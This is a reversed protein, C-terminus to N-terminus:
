KGDYGNQKLYAAMKEKARSLHSKVTGAPCGTIGAIKEISQDEMYFLTICTREIEKLQSLARYIDIERGIDKQDTNYQADVQYTDLDSTEKRNRLYDYFVNYAIRYLWTSFSSFNRFSAINTYAKIFTDQALDDSLEHDGCTLNLFFRRVPSQYKRVLQDFAKTNHFVIVQAVLSLDNLQSM